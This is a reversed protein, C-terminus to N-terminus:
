VSSVKLCIPKRNHDEIWINTPPLEILDLLEDETLKNELIDSYCKESAKLFKGVIDKGDINKLNEQGGVDSYFKRWSLERAEEVSVRCSKNIHAMVKDLSLTSM